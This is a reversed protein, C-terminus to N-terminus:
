TGASLANPTVRPPYASKRVGVRITEGIRMISTAAGAGIPGIANIWRYYPRKLLSM